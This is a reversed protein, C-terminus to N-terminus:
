RFRGELEDALKEVFEDDATITERVTVWNKGRCTGCRRTGHSKGDGDCSPCPKRTKKTITM